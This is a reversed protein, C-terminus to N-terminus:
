RTIVSCRQSKCTAAERAPAANATKTANPLDAQFLAKGGYYAFPTAPLGARNYLNAGIPSASYAYQVGVPNPSPM